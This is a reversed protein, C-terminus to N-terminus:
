RGSTRKKPKNRCEGSAGHPRDNEVAAIHRLNEPADECLRCGPDQCTPGGPREGDQAYRRNEHQWSYSRQATTSDLRKSGSTSNRRMLWRGKM